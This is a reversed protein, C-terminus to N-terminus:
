AAKKRAAWRAKMTASLKKRMAASMPKRGSAKKKAPVAKKTGGRGKQKAWRQKMAASIRARAAASMPGRKGGAPVARSGKPPRGPGRGTGELASIAGDIRALEQKLQTVITQIDMNIRESLISMTYCPPDNAVKDHGDNLLQIKSQRSAGQLQFNVAFHFHSVSPLTRNAIRQRTADAKSAGSLSTCDAGTKVIVGAPLLM